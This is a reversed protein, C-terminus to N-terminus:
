LSSEEKRNHDFTYASPCMDNLNCSLCDPKKADCVQRGHTILLYNVAWWREKPFLKMLDQEVKNRYKEETLGLRHSLRDVHTDVAIGVNKGYAGSLVINATKRGVGKLEVLEEMTEPVKGNHKDLLTQATSQLADAKRRYFGSSRIDQELEERPAYAYDELTKYKKFLKRTVKNIQKDTAQASLITAVLLELPNDHRLETGDIDTYTETLRQFIDEAHRQKDM